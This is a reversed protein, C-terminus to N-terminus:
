MDACPPSNSGKHLLEVHHHDRENVGSSRPEIRMNRFGAATITDNSHVGSGNAVVRIVSGRQAKGRTWHVGGLLIMFREAGICKM